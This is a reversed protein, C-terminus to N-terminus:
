QAGYVTATVDLSPNAISNSIFPSLDSTNSSVINGTLDISVEQTQLHSFYPANTSQNNKIWYRTNAGPAIVAPTNILNSSVSPQLYYYESYGSAAVYSLPYATMAKVPSGFSIQFNGFGLGQIAQLIAYKKSQDWKFLGSNDTSDLLPILVIEQSANLAAPYTGSVATTDSGSYTTSRGYGPTRWSEVVYFKIQTLAECITKIGWLTCGTQFAEAAGLLRERYNSDKVHIEQWQDNSLQDIFPNTAFSYIEPSIRQVNLITGLINDLNSYELYQQSIKAAIQLNRLQGTGSNGLLIKMLTTLNDGDNFNYIDDPFNKVKELFTSHLSIPYTNGAM